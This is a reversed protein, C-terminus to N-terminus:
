GGEDRLSSNVKAWPPTRRPPRFGRFDCHNSSVAGYPRHSIGISRWEKVAAQSADHAGGTEIKFGTPMQVARAGSPRISRLGPHLGGRRVSGQPDASRNFGGRLAPAFIRYM